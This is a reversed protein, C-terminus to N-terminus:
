TLLVTASLTVPIDVYVHLGPNRKEFAPMSIYRRKNALAIRWVQRCRRLVLIRAFPNDEDRTKDM